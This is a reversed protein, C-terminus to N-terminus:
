CLPQAGMTVGFLRGWFLYGEVSNHLWLHTPCDSLPVHSGREALWFCLVRVQM